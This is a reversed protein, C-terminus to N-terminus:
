RNRTTAAAQDRAALKRPRRRLARALALILLSWPAVPQNGAGLACGCGGGGATGTGGAGATTGAAGSTGAAASMGAAGGGRGGTGAGGNTGAGGSAGSGGIAGAGGSTGGSGGAGAGAVGGAGGGSAGAAGGSGAGGDSASRGGAGDVGGDPLPPAAGVLVPRMFVREKNVYPATDLRRYFLVGGADTWVLSPARVENTAGAGAPVGGDPPSAAIDTPLSSESGPVCRRDAGIRCAAFTIAGSGGSARTWVAVYESGTWALAPVGLTEPATAQAIVVDDADLRALSANLRAGMIRPGAGGRDRWIVFASTGDTAVAPYDQPGAGGAIVTPTTAPLTGDANVVRGQVDKLEDNWFSTSDRSRADFILLFTGGIAVAQMNGIGTGGLSGANTSKADLQAGTASVRQLVVYTGDNLLCAVLFSQGNWVVLTDDDIYDGNYLPGILSGALAGLASVRQVYRRPARSQNASNYVVTFQTGDWAVAPDLESDPGTALPTVSKALAGGTVTVRAGYTDSNEEDETGVNGRQRDDQWVVYAAAPTGVARFNLQQNPQRTVVTADSGLPRLDPGLGRVLVGDPRDGIGQGVDAYVTRAMAVLYRSGTWVVQASKVPATALATPGVAAAAVPTGSAAIARITTRVRTGAETWSCIYRSGDWAASIQGLAGGAARVEFAAADVWAGDTGARRGYVTVPQGNATTQGWCVVAGSGSSAIAMQRVSAPGGAESLPSLAAGTADVKMVKAQGGDEVALLAGGAIPAAGVVFRMVGDNPFGISSGGPTAVSGDRGIRTMRANELLPQWFVLFDSGFPVAAVPTRQEAVPAIDIGGPRDPTGPDLVVGASTVRSGQLEEGGVAVKAWFVLAMDGNWTAVPAWPTFSKSPPSPPTMGIPLPDLLNGDADLRVFSVPRNSVALGPRGDDLWVVLAGPGGPAIFPQTQEGSQETFVPEDIREEAGVVPATLSRARTETPPAPRNSTCAFVLGTAALYMLSARRRDLM